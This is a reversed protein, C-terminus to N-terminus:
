APRVVAGNREIEARHEAQDREYEALVEANRAKVRRGRASIGAGVWLSVERAVLGAAVVLPNVLFRRFEDTAAAPTLTAADLLLLVGITGFYVFLGVFLSGLVFSWWGARNVILALVIFAVTFLLVPIYFSQDRLFEIRTDGTMVARILLAILAYFFLFIFASVAAILVGVGRNGKKKPPHPAAVYVVERPASASASYDPTAGQQAAYAGGAAVHSSAPVPEPQGAADEDAFDEPEADPKIAVDDAHTTPVVPEDPNSGATERELTAEVATDPGTPDEPGLDEPGLDEHSLDERRDSDDAAAAPPTAGVATSGAIGTPAPEVPEATEASQVREAAVAPEVPEAPQATGDARAQAPEREGRPTTADM